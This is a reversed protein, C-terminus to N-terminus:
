KEAQTLIGRVLLNKNIGMFFPVLFVVLSPPFRTATKKLVGWITFITFTQALILCM